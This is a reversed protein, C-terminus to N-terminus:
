ILKQIGSKFFHAKGNEITKIINKNKEIGSIILGRKAGVISFTLGVYGVGVVGIKKM